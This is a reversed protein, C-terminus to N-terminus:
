QPCSSRLRKYESPSIGTEKKFFRSFYYSDEFGVSLSIEAITYNSSILMNKAKELRLFSIYKTPTTNLAGKFIRRLHVESIGSHQAIEQVSLQPNTYNEFIYSTIQSFIQNQKAYKKSQSKIAQAYLNYVISLSQPRYWLSKTNWIHFIKVFESKVTPPVDKFVCSPGNEDFDFDICLFKSQKLVRIEYISNKSLYFFSSSDALFSYGEFIYEAEGALFCVFGDSYRGYDKKKLIGPNFEGEFVRHIKSIILNEEM